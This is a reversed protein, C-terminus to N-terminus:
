SYLLLIKRREVLLVAPIAPEGYNVLGAVLIGITTCLQFTINIAGRWQPRGDM